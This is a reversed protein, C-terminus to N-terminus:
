KKEFEKEIIERYKVTLSNSIGADIVVIGKQTAIATVADYGMRVITVKESMIEAKIFKGINHNETDPPQTSFVFTMAVLALVLIIFSVILPSKKM